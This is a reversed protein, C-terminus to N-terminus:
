QSRSTGLSDDTYKKAADLTVGDQDDVYQKDVDVEIGDIQEKLTKVNVVDADADMDADGCRIIKNGQMNLPKYIWVTNSGWGLRQDSSLTGTNEYSLSDRLVKSLLLVRSAKVEQLCCETKPMFQAKAILEGTVDGGTKPIYGVLKNDTYQKSADLTQGSVEIVFETTALGSPDFSSM